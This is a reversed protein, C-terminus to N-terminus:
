KSLAMLQRSSICWGPPPKATFSMPLRAPSHKWDRVDSVALRWLEAPEHGAALFDDLGVKTGDKGEPLYIVKVKAGRKELFAKLRSLAQRVNPKTMVDSDFAITVERNRM